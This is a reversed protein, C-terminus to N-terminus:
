VVEVFGFRVVEVAFIIVFGVVVVFGSCVSVSLGLGVAAVPSVSEKSGVNSM